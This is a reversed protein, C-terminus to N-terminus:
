YPMVRNFQLWYKGINQITETFEEFETPKVVYSTAGLQYCTEIDKPDESSTFIIVPLFKTALNERIVKLVETGNVKPMKLDLLVVCTESIESDNSKNILMDIAEDGDHAVLMNHTINLESLAFHILQETRVDDEVLLITM